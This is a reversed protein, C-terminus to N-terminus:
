ETSRRAEELRTAAQAALSSGPGELIQSLSMARAFHQMAEEGKGSALLEEGLKMSLVSLETDARRAMAIKQDELKRAFQLTSVVWLTMGAGHGLLLLTAAWVLIRRQRNQKQLRRRAGALENGLTTLNIPLDPTAEVLAELEAMHSEAVLLDGADIESAIRGSLHRGKFELAPRNEPWLELARAVREAVLASRRYQDLPSSRSASGIALEMAEALVAESERRQSSGTLWDQLRAIFDEASPLRRAPDSALCQECLTALEEPIWRYPARERPPIVYGTAAKAMAAAPTPARYPYDGTLLVYLTGGLLFLDTHPGLRRTSQDTQEPAMMCPTGAPNQATEITPVEGSHRSASGSTADGGAMFRLALGWDMLVTEGFRGVMVQSPKLDRHMIGRSHAFAVAQAMRELIPVHKALFDADSLLSRDAELVQNWPVGQIRKMALQPRETNECCALDHVPVINPHELRATILAERVFEERLAERQSAEAETALWHEARITKIAIVRSLAPQLAEFVQGMGGEGILKRLVYRGASDVPPLPAGLPFLRQASDDNGSSRPTTEKSDAFNAPFRRYSGPPWITQGISSDDNAPFEQSM